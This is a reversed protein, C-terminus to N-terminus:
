STTRRRAAVRATPFGADVFAGTIRAPGAQAGLASGGQSVSNPVCLCSSAVYYTLALPSALNDELRDEAFPEVAFVHGGASLVSRAHTLAGVPDGMDHVADVFCV